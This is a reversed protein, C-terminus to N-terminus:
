IGSSKYGRQNPYLITKTRGGGDIATVLTNAPGRELVTGSKEDWWTPGEARFNERGEVMPPIEYPTFMNCYKCVIVCLKNFKM